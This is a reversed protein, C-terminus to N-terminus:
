TPIAGAGGFGAPDSAENLFNNSAATKSYPPVIVSRTGVWSLNLIERRALPALMADARDARTINQTDSTVSTANERETIVGPKGALWVAQWATARALHKRDKVTIADAPADEDAGTFTDIMSSALNLTATSIGAVGTWQEVQGGDAWAM